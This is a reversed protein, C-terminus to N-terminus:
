ELHFVQMKISGEYISLAYGFSTEYMFNSDICFFHSRGEIRSDVKSDMKSKCDGGFQNNVMDHGIISVLNREIDVEILRQAM